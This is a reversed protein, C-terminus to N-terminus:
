PKPTILMFVAGQPDAIVSIRGVEPIDWPDKHVQGGLEAARRTSADVDDVAVYGMWVPPPGGDFAPLIGAVGGGPVMLLTYGANPGGADQATWGVVRSYFAAAAKVDTTMLEYWLFAPTQM